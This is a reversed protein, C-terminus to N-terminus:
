TRTRTRGHITMVRGMLRPSLLGATLKRQTVQAVLLLNVQNPVAKRSLRLDLQLQQFRWVAPEAPRPATLAPSGQTTNATWQPQMSNFSGSAVSHDKLSKQTITDTSFGSESWGKGGSVDQSEGKEEQLTIM